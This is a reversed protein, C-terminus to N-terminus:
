ESVTEQRAARDAQQEQESPTITEAAGSTEMETETGTTDTAEMDEDIESTTEGTDVGRAEGCEVLEGEDIVGDHNIDECSGVFVEVTPNIARANFVESDPTVLEASVPELYEFSVTKELPDGLFYNMLFYALITGAIAITFVSIYDSTKM